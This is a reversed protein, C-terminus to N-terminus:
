AKTPLPFGDVSALVHTIPLRSWVLVRIHTSNYILEVPEKGELIFRADKPNTIMVIPPMNQNSERHLPIDLFSVLDHDVAIIRFMAHKKMDGLELELLKTEHYAYMKEGLGAVLKHLHGSLWLSVHHSLQWFSYGQKTRDFVMYGIPYHTM